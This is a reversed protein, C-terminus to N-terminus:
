GPTISTTKASAHPDVSATWYPFVVTFRSGAGISSEVAVEGGLLKVCRDVIALGLGAGGKFHNAPDDLQVFPQFISKLAASPIGPGTDEVSFEVKREQPRDHVAVTISGTRTFKVANDILNDLVLSLKKPDTELLPSTPPLEWKLEVDPKLPPRSRQQLENVLRTLAVPLHDVPMNGADIRGLDLVNDVLRIQGLASAQVRRLMDDHEAENQPRSEHDLLLETYGLIINLPTRLEHSMNAIFAGKARSAALSEDYLQALEKTREAVRNELEMAWAIGRDARRRERKTQAIVHGYFLAVTFFFVLRLLSPTAWRDGPASLLLNAAAVTTSGVVVVPLSEGLAALFLVFFYLLFFEQGSRGGNSHIAWSVWLTDAILVPAEIYWAFLTDEKVFSLVVNSALAAAIMVAHSAPVVARGEFVLMYSAAAIFVYRLLLFLGKRGGGLHQM